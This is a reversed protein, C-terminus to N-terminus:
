GTWTPRLSTKRGHPVRKDIRVEKEEGQHPMPGAYQQSGSAGCRAGGRAPSGSRGSRGSHGTGPRGSRLHGCRLGGSPGAEAADHQLLRCAGVRIATCSWRKPPSMSRKERLPHSQLCSPFYATDCAGSALAAMADCSLDFLVIVEYADLDVEYHHMLACDTAYHAKLAESDLTAHCDTGHDQTLVLLGPKGEACPAAAEAACCEEAASLKAAVRRMIEEVMANHDM